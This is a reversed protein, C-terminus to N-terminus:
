AAYLLTRNREIAQRFYPNRVASSVVLDIRRGFLAELTELLGFYSNAHEGAPIESFTVLFDLDSDDSDFNAGAASGFLELRAVHFRECAAHLEQAREEIM